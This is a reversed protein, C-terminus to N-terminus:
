SPKYDADLKKLSKNVQRCFKAINRQAAINAMATRAPMAPVGLVSENDAITDLVIAGGAIKVDKGVVAQDNLVVAGGVM